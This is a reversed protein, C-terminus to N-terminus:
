PLDEVYGVKDRNEDCVRGWELLLRWVYLRRDDRRLVRAAWARGSEAIWRAAKDGRQVRGFGVRGLYGEQVADRAADGNTFYDLVAYLDRFTNDLPVYHLWPVLRDDHWEAYVTAKLPVSTSLLTARFRAAVGGEGRERDVIPLFKANYDTLTPGYGAPAGSVAASGSAPLAPAPPVFPAINQCPSKTLKAGDGCAFLTFQARAFKALFSGVHKERRRASDYNGPPPFDFTAGRSVEGEEIRQVATGNLMEILRQRHFHRWPSDTDRGGSGIGTFVLADEKAKWKRGLLEAIRNVHERDGLYSASPLLIDNNVQLKGGSFIPILDKTTNVSHPRTHSSFLSL